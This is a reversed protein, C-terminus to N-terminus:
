FDIELMRKIIIGGIIELGVGCFILLHGMSTKFLASMYEPNLVMIVGAMVIPLIFLIVGSLKGEATLTDVEGAIRQRERVTNAVIEIVEALNGGVDLQILIATVAIDLDPLPVRQLLNLLADPLGLGVNTEDLVVAFEASIPPRMEDRIAQLSRLLGYGSRLSSAILMLADPLQHEFQRLRQKQLIDLLLWGGALTLLLGAAAALPGMLLGGAAALVIAAAAWAATFEGPRWNLGAQKLRRELAGYRDVRQVVTAFTPFRDGDNSGADPGALADSGSLMRLRRDVRWPAASVLGLVLATVASTAAMVLVSIGWANM